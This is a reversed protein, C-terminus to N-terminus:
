FEEDAVVECRGEVCDARAPFSACGPCVPKPDACDRGVFDGAHSELVAVEQMACCPDLNVLSCDGAGDCPAIQECEIGLDQEVIGCGNVPV